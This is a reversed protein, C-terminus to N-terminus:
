CGCPRRYHPMDDDRLVRSARGRVGRGEAIWRESATQGRGAPTDPRTSHLVATGRMVTVSHDAITYPTDLEDSEPMTVWWPALGRDAELVEVPTPEDQAHGEAGAERLWRAYEALDFETPGHREAHDLTCEEAEASARAAKFAEFRAEPSDILKVFTDRDTLIEM